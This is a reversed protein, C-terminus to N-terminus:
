IGISFRLTFVSWNCRRRVVGCGTGVAGAGILLTGVLELSRYWEYAVLDARTPWGAPPRYFTANSGAMHCFFTFSITENFLTSESKSRRQNVNYIVSGLVSHSTAFSVASPPVKKSARTGNPGWNSQKCHNVM